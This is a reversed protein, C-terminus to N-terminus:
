QYLVVGEIAYGYPTTCTCPSGAPVGGTLECAGYETACYASSYYTPAGYSPVQFSDYARSLAQEQYFERDSEQIQRSNCMARAVISHTYQSCDEAFAHSAIISPVAISVAIVKSKM